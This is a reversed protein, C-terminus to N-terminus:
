GIKGTDESAACFAIGVGIVAKAIQKGGGTVADCM